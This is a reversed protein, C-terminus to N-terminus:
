TEAPDKIGFSKMMAFRKLMQIDTTAIPVQRIMPKWNSCAGAEAAAEADADSLAWLWEVCAWSV